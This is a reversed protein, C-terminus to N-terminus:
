DERVTCGSEQCTSSTPKVGSFDEVIKSEVNRAVGKFSDDHTILSSHAFVSTHAYDFNYACCVAVSFTLLYEDPFYACTVLVLRSREFASASTDDVVNFFDTEADCPNYNEPLSRVRRADHFLEKELFKEELAKGRIECLDALMSIRVGARSRPIIADERAADLLHFWARMWCAAPTSNSNPMKSAAVGKLQAQLPSCRSDNKLLLCVKEAGLCGPLQAACAADADAVKDSGLGLAM